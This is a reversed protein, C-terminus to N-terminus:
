GFLRIFPAHKRLRKIDATVDSGARDPGSIERDYPTREMLYVANGRSEM